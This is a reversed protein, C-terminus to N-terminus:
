VYCAISHAIFSIDLYWMMNLFVQKYESPILALCMVIAGSFLLKVRGYREVTAIAIFTAFFNVVNLALAGYIGGKSGFFDEL